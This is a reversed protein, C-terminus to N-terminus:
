ACRLRDTVTGEDVYEGLTDLWPEAASEEDLEDLEVFLSLSRGTSFRADVLIRHASELVELNLDLTETVGAPVQGLTVQEAATGGKSTLRWVPQEDELLLDQGGVIDLDTLLEKPCLPLLLTLRAETARKVGMPEITEIAPDSPAVLLCGSLFTSLLLALLARSAANSRRGRDLGRHNGLLAM